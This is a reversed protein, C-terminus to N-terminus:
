VHIDAQRRQRCVRVLRDLYLRMSYIGFVRMMCGSGGLECECLEFVHTYACM